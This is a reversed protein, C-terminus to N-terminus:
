HFALNEWNNVDYIDEGHYVYWYAPLLVNGHNERISNEVKQVVHYSNNKESNNIPNGSYPNVPSEILENMAITPVDANTMFREDVSFRKNEFDKVMLVPNFYLIDHKMAYNIDDSSEDFIHGPILQSFGHDSVIIIRSNDYVNNDRLYDMWRGLQIFAAMNAHYCASQMSNELKIERGDISKRIMPETDFTTNDVNVAPTYDPLQLLNSEHATDNNFTVFKNQEDDSIHTFISLNSLITYEELFTSKIGSAKLIGDFIQFPMTETIEDAGSNTKNYSGSTYIYPQLILPMIKYISYCFFNRNRIAIENEYIEIFGLHGNANYAHINPHDEYISLDPTEKYNAFSPQIVTVDYGTEDFIVPMMKLAENHKTVLPVDPRANMKEPTYEYGGMLAPLAGNTNSAFSLTQPYYTFGSFQNQLEPREEMLFPVYYGIARDMMIIIVNKGKTTLTIKPIENNQETLYKEIINVENKIKYINVISMVTAAICFSTMAINLLKVKWIWIGCLILCIVFLVALNLFVDRGRDVPFIEFVLSSSMTGRNTGFFMFNVSSCVSLLCMGLSMIKKYKGDALRYYIGSWILFTGAALLFTVLIYWLPSYFKARNIFDNPSSKIVGSSILVGTLITMFISSLTFLNNDTSGSNTITFKINRKKLYEYLLPILLIFCITLLVVTERIPHFDHFFVTYILLIFSLLSSLFIAIKKGSNTKSLLNKVLSFVNNMLWYLVLGSPSNYLIVLFVLALGYTQIKTKIPFDKLYFAASLFNVLTMIIPLVNMTVGFATFMADPMGLNHIPGFSVGELLNLNSLFHYAAIFFPIQLLLSLSGKLVDTPKHNNIRYYTQLIMFREDGTFTKKIQDERDKMKTELEREEAQIQDARRYLPFVLLNVAISLGIISAGPSGTFTYITNFVFEFLLEIPKILLYSVADLFM